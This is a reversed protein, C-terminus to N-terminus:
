SGEILREELAELQRAIVELGRLMAATVFCAAGAGIIYWGVVPSVEEIAILGGILGGFAAALMLWRALMLLVM